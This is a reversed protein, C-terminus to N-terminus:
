AVGPRPSFRNTPVLGARTLLDVVRKEEADFVVPTGPEHGVLHTVVCGACADTHLAVCRDCDITLAAARDGSPPDAGGRAPVLRLPHHASM